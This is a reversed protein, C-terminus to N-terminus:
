LVAFRILPYTPLISHSRFKRDQRGPEARAQRLRRKGSGSPVWWGKPWVSGLGRLAALLNQEVISRVALLSFCAQLVGQPVPYESQDSTSTSIRPLESSSDIPQWGGHRHPMGADHM